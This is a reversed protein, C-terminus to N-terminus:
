DIDNECMVKIRTQFLNRSRINLVKLEGSKLSKVFDDISEIRQTETTITMLGFLEGCYYNKMINTSLLWSLLLIRIILKESKFFGISQSLLLSVVALRIQSENKYKGNFCLSIVFVIFVFTILTLWVTGDFPQLLSSSYGIKQPLATSFTVSNILHPYAFLAAENRKENLTIGTIGM